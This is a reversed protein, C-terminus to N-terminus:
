ETTPTEAAPFAARGDQNRRRAADIGDRAREVTRSEDM